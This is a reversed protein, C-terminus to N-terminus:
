VVVNVNLIIVSALMYVSSVPLATPQTWEVPPFRLGFLTEAFM